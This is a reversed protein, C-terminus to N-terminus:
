GQSSYPVASGPDFTKFASSSIDPTEELPEHTPHTDWKKIARTYTHLQLPQHRNTKRQLKTSPLKFYNPSPSPIPGGRYNFPTSISPIPSADRGNVGSNYVIRDNQKEAIKRTKLEEQQRKSVGEGGSGSRSRSIRADIQDWALVHVPIARRIALTSCLIMCWFPKKVEGKRSQWCVFIIGTSM